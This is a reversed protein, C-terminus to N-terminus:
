ADVRSFNESEILRITEIGLLHAGWGKRSLTGALKPNAFLALATMALPAASIWDRRV